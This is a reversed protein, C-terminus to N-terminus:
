WGQRHMRAFFDRTLTIVTGSLLIVAILNPLMMLGNLTDSLEWVFGLELTGGVAALLIFLLRYVPVLRDGILYKLGCEGYYSWGIMSSVAFLATALSVFLGGFRGFGSEFAAVALAAGDLGPEFTGSTLIVLATISCMVITDAFVEFIGWFGQQVPEDVDACAHVIVSSGLGAENSFIGRAVGFRMARMVTYGMIGGSASKLSLAQTIILSLAAPLRSRNIFILLIGGLCYFLVMFPVLTEAVRAIRKLGGFIIVGVLIATFLSTLLEPVGMYTFLADAVANAQTINGMGLSACVCFFSFLVALWKLKLGREIYVMPGGIWRGNKGRYRYHIGLVNEAYILMMGLLASVWMWFVAGPGGAVIATAVGAINGIGATGALATAFSQFQSIANKDRSKTTNRNTFISLFTMKFWLHAQTLQLFGTKISLYLGTALILALMEPGWIVGSLAQNVHAIRDFLDSM